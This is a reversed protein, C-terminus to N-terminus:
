KRITWRAFTKTTYYSKYATVIDQDWHEEPMCEPIGQKSIYTKASYELPRPTGPPVNRALWLVHEACAHIKKFRATYEIALAM